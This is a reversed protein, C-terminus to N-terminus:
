GAAKRHTGKLPSYGLAKLEAAIEALRHTAHDKVAEREDKLQEIREVKAKALEQEQQLLTKTESMKEEKRLDCIDAVQEPTM